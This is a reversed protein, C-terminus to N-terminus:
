RGRLACAFVKWADFDVPSKTIALAAHKKATAINGAGLAWWAWKQHLESTTIQKELQTKDFADPLTLGRRAYAEKVAINCHLRQKERRSHGVSKPHMRYNLLVEPLNALMGIEALKLFLDIDESPELETRYGGIRELADRRIMVAPHCIAGGQQALHAEDIKQHDTFQAFKRIPLGDPDILMVQSGVAVYGSHNNLFDIQKAFREPLAVDDSDMRAVYQGKAKSLGENLAITYGTNGRSVL